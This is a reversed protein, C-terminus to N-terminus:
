QLVVDNVMDALVVIVAIDLEYLSTQSYWLILNLITHFLM